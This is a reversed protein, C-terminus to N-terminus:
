DGFQGLPTTLTTKIPKLQWHSPGVPINTISDCSAQWGDSVFIHLKM